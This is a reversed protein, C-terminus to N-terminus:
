AKAIIKPTASANATGAPVAYKGERSFDSCSTAAEETLWVVACNVVIIPGTGAPNTILARPIAQAKKMSAILKRKIIPASQFSGSGGGEGAALFATHDAIASPM